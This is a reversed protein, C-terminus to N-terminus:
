KIVSCWSFFQLYHQSQVYHLSEANEAYSKVFSGFNNASHQRSIRVAFVVIIGLFNHNQFENCAFIISQSNQGQFDNCFAGRLPRRLRSEGLKWCLHDTLINELFEFFINPNYKLFLDLLCSSVKGGRNGTTKLSKEKIPFIMMVIIMMNVTIKGFIIFKVDCKKVLQSNMLASM